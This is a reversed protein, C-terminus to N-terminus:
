GLFNELYRHFTFPNWDRISVRPLEYPDTTGAVSVTDPAACCSLTFGLGKLIRTTTRVGQDSDGAPYAFYEIRHGLVEELIQKNRGIETVQEWEPLVSLRAGHHPYGGITILGGEELTRLEQTSLTAHSDFEEGTSDLDRVIARMADTQESPSLNSLIEYLDDFAQFRDRQSALPWSRPNGDIGIALRGHLHGAILLDELVDWWFRTKELLNASPVFVTAPIEFRALVDKATYLVDSYAGDFTVVVTRGRFPTATELRRKLESLSIVHFDRALYEMQREFNCPQVALRLPDHSLLAVRRYQLILCDTAACAETRETAPTLRKSTHFDPM